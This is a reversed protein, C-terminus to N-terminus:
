NGLGIAGLLHVAVTNAANHQGLLTKIDAMAAQARVSQASETNCFPLAASALQEATVNDQLLEPFIPTDGGHLLNPLGLYPVKIVRRAVEYTLWHGKYCLVMPTGYLAAELTVTGSAGLAVDAASMLAHNHGKLLRIAREGALESAEAMQQLFLPEDLSPSLALVVELEKGLTDRVKQRLQPIAGVLPDLLYRIEMTRSGPFLGVLVKDPDLAHQQCFDAKSTPPPLQEVLPHGVYTAPVKHRDYLAAEFPLICYVHEVENKLINIRGQRSAWVQPPIYYFLRNNLLRAMWLNFGGYDILLVAHPRFNRLHRKIRQAMAIHNPISRLPGWLGVQGMKKNSGFLPIGTAELNPGGVAEIVIGPCQAQLAKVVAAGHQDGSYDGTIMFLRPASAPEDNRVMESMNELDLGLTNRSAQKAEFAVRHRRKFFHGLKFMTLM